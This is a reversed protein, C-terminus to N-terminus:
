WQQIRRHSGVRSTVDNERGDTHEGSIVFHQSTGPSSLAIGEPQLRVSKWVPKLSSAAVSNHFLFCLGGAVVLRFVTPHLRRETSTVSQCSFM